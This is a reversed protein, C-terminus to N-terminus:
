YSWNILGNNECFESVQTSIMDQYSEPITKWDTIEWYVRQPIEGMLLFYKTYCRNRDVPDFGWTMTVLYNKFIIAKQEM